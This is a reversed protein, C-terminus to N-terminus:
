VLCQNVDRYLSNEASPFKLYENLLGVTFNFVRGSVKQEKLLLMLM